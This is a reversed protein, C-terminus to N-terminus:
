FYIFGVCIVILFTFSLLSVFSYCLSIRFFLYTSFVQFHLSPFHGKQREEIEAQFFANHILAQPQWTVLSQGVRQHSEWGLGMVHCFLTFIEEAREIWNM